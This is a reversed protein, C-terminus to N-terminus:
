GLRQYTRMTDLFLTMGMSFGWLYEQIMRYESTPSSACGVGCCQASWCTERDLEM